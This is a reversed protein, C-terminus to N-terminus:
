YPAITTLTPVRIGRSIDFPPRVSAVIADFALHAEGTLATRSIEGGSTDTLRLVSADPRYCVEVTSTQSRTITGVFYDGPPLDMVFNNLVLTEDGSHRYEPGMACINIIQQVPPRYQPTGLSTLGPPPITPPRPTPTPGTPILEAQAPV